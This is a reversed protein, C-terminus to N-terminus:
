ILSMSNSLESIRVDASATTCIPSTPPSESAASREAADDTATSRLCASAAAAAMAPSIARRERGSSPYSPSAVVAPNASTVASTEDTVDLECLSARLSTSTPESVASDAHRASTEDTTAAPSNDTSAAEEMVRPSYPM